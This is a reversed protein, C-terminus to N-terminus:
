EKIEENQTTDSPVVPQVPPKFAPAPPRGPMAVGRGGRMGPMPPGGRGRGPGMPMGRGRGAGMPNAQPATAKASLWEDSCVEQATLEGARMKKRQDAFRPGKLKMQVQRGKDRYVRSRADDSAAAFLAEEIEKALKCAAPEDEAQFIEYLMKRM